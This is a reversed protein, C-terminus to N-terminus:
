ISWISFILASDWEWIMTAKEAKKYLWDKKFDSPLGHFIYCLYLRPVALWPSNGNGKSMSHTTLDIPELDYNWIPLKVWICHITEPMCIPEAKWNEYKLAALYNKFDLYLRQLWEWIFHTWIRLVM